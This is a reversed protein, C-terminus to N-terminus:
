GEPIIVKGLIFLFDEKETGAFKEGPYTIYLTGTM